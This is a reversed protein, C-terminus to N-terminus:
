QNDSRRDTLNYSAEVQHLARESSLFSSYLCFETVPFPGLKLLSHEALFRAVREPPTGKLRALAVHPTFKRGESPLGVQKLASEVRNRLRSLLDSKEVGVWLTEPTRRLPFFGIGKLTLDFGKVQVTALAEQADQFVAGDVEGIFKLTIHLRTEDVWKAGPLGYCIDILRRTVLDPLDIAVFLRYM